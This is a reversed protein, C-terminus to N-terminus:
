FCKMHAWRKSTLANMMTAQASTTPHLRRWAHRLLLCRGCRWLPTAPHLRRRVRPLLLPAATNLAEWRWARPLLLLAAWPLLLGGMATEPKGRWSSRISALWWQDLTSFYCCANSANRVNKTISWFLIRVHKAISWFLIRSIYPLRSMISSM